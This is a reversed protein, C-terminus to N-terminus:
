CLSALAVRNSWSFVQRQAKAFDLWVYDSHEQPNLIVQPKESLACFFVHEFNRETGPTYRKRWQSLIQYSRVIGTARLADVNIGTEEGLERIAAAYPQEGWELSGTVSQWFNEHDTRKILLAETTTHVVVLVSEPRKFQQQNIICHRCYCAELLPKMVGARRHYTTLFSSLISM